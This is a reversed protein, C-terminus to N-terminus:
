KNTVRQGFQLKPSKASEDKMWRFRGPATLMEDAPLVFRKGYGQADVIWIRGRITSRLSGDSGSL